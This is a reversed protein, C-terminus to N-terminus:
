QGNCVCLSMFIAILHCWNIPVVCVFVGWVFCVSYGNIPALVSLFGCVFLACMCVCEIVGALVCLCVSFVAGMLQTPGCLCGLGLMM